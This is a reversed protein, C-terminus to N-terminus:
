RLHESGVGGLVLEILVDTLRDLRLQHVAEVASDESVALRSCSLDVLYEM